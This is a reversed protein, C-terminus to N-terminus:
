LKQDLVSIIREATDGSGMWVTDAPTKFNTVFDVGERVLEDGPRAVDVMASNGSRVSEWRETFDRPVLVPVDLIAPEEQATGSDSVM